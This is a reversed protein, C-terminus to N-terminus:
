RPGTVPQSQGDVVTVTITAFSAACVGGPMSDDACGAAALLMAAVGCKM